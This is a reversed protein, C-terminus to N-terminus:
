GCRRRWIFGGSIATCRCPGKRLKQSGSSARMKWRECHTRPKSNRAFRSDAIHIGLASAGSRRRGPSCCHTANNKEEKSSLLASGFTGRLVEHSIRPVRSIRLERPRAGRGRKFPRGGPSHEAYTGHGPRQTRRKREFAAAVGCAEASAGSDPSCVSGMSTGAASHGSHRPAVRLFRRPRYARWDPGTTACWGSPGVDRVLRKMRPRGCANGLVRAYSVQVNRGSEAGKANKRGRAARLPEPM